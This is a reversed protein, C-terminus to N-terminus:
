SKVTIAERPCALTCTKCNKDGTVRRCKELRNGSFKGKSIRLVYKASSPYEDWNTMLEDLDNAPCASVCNNCGNCLDEDIDFQLAIKRLGPIRRVKPADDINAVNILVETRSLPSIRVTSGLNTRGANRSDFVISYIYSQKKTMISDDEVQVLVRKLIIMM